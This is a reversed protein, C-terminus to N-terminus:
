SRASELKMVLIAKLNAAIENNITDLQSDLHAIAESYDRAAAQADGAARALDGAIQLWRWTRPLAALLSFAQAVQRSKALTEIYRESIREDDPRMQHAQQMAASAAGWDELRGLIISRKVWDDASVVSVSDLDALARRLEAETPLRMLVAARLRWAEDDAPKDSLHNNLADLADTLEGTQIFAEALQLPSYNM